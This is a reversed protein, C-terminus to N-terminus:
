SVCKRCVIESEHTEQQAINMETGFVGSRDFLFLDGFLLRLLGFKDNLLLFLFGLLRALHRLTLSICGDNRRLARCLCAQDICLSLRLSILQQRM